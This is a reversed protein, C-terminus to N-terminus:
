SKSKPRVLWAADREDSPAAQVPQADARQSIAAILEDLKSRLGHIFSALILLTIAASLFILNGFMGFDRSNVSMLWAAVSVLALLYTLGASIGLPTM